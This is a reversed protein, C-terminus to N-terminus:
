QKVFRKTISNSGSTIQMFYIGPNLQGIPLQVKHLHSVNCAMHRQVIQGTVSIVSIEMESQEDLEVRVQIKESAPNPYLQVNASIAQNEKAGVLGGNGTLLIDDVALYNDDDSNHLFGIYVTQGAYASLDVSHPTLLGPYQTAASGAIPVNMDLNTHLIGSSFSNEDGNTNQAFHMLTDTESFQPDYYFDPNTSIAVTYGDLYLNGVAPASKWSFNATNDALYFGPLVMWNRNGPSFNQLWSSSLGVVEASDAGGNGLNGVFWGGPLGNFDPFADEDFTTFVSDINELYVPWDNFDQFFLTDQQASAASELLTIAAAIWFQKKM